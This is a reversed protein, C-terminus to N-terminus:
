PTVEMEDQLRGSLAADVLAKADEASRDAALLLVALAKVERRIVAEVDVTPPAQEERFLPTPKEKPGDLYEDFLRRLVAALKEGDADAKAKAAALRHPPVRFNVVKTGSENDSEAGNGNELPEANDTSM